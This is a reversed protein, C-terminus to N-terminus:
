MRDMGGLLRGVRRGGRRVQLEKVWAASSLPAGTLGQVMEM